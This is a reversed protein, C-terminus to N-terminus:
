IVDEEALADVEASSLGLVEAYVEYNHEGYVPAGKDIWGGAHPPTESLDFPVEAVPWTGISPNPVETLWTLHALQPDVDCRDEATQAAGAPVGARQLAEMAAYRDQGATWSSILRDIEDHHAIRGALTSFRPERAWQPHGATEALAAWHADTACTIAIWRDEGACRYVGEPAANGYPSRNGARQWSRGNVAWDLIPVSTTLIGVETQSADIWQGRGTEGRQYLASVIALTFSYAGLWDLYSYGWGSPPAPEPLGGMETLSSLSGAIPGVARYRGYEGHTGMGSQQAYIIDPNLERLRDWSFGWRDFVGPSFGEAVVDSRRIFEEAIERGKPHRVNLSIGRKGPNKNNFQGGMPGTPPATLPATAARRTERGGAPFGGGRTDPNKKWEVKVVDAGLAALFRTGGASALFWSFDFVKIGALAFPKKHVSLLEEGAPRAATRAVPAPRPQWTALVQETDEGLLPARRGVEWASETAIWKSVPYSYAQGLEPHDIKQFTGRALWHADLANEHPKRVPACLLGAAQMEHWPLEDYTFRRVLRAIIEVNGSAAATTGPITRSGTEEAVKEETIDAGMGYRELFPKLLNRDRAGISIVHLWRGDKTQALSFDSIAAMAHRATQRQYPQRQVVWAMLDTETNKAVAEHVACTLRQGLGTKQRHILAAIIGFAVQEGAIHFSQLVQPAVPALDYSGDPRPDYGCNLLPGGLALHVLDSGTYGAWPGDEGFPTIRAAVLGPFREALADATLGLGDLQGAPTSDLLVDAAALLTGLREAGGASGLDLAVSKKGRNYAWFHLSREPGPDDGAFPGFARTSAGGPPEVRVVEAGLGALTLGCYEGQVDGIEIVRLGALSGPETSAPGTPEPATRAPGTQEPGTPEPM